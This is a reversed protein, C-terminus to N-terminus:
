DYELAPKKFERGIRSIRRSHPAIKPTVNALDSLAALQDVTGLGILADGPHLHFEAHLNTHLSGDARRVALVNVGTNARM